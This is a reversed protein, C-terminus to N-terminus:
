YETVGYGGDESGREEGDWEVAGADFGPSRFDHTILRGVRVGVGVRAGRPDVNASKEEYEANGGEWRMPHAVNDSGM